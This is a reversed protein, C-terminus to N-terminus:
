RDEGLEPSVALSSESHYENCFSMKKKKDDNQVQDDNARCKAHIVSKRTAFGEPKHATGYWM